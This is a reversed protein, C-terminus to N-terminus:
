RAGGSVGGVPGLASLRGAFVVFLGPPAGVNRRAVALTRARFGAARRVRRGRLGSRLRAGLRGLVALRLAEFRRRVQRLSELERAHARGAARSGARARENPTRDRAPPCPRAHYGGGPYRFASRRYWTRRNVGTPCFVLM